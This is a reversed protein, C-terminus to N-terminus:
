LTSLKVDFTKQRDGAGHFAGQDVLVRRFESSVKAPAPGARLRMHKQINHPTFLVSM